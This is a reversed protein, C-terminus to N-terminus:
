ENPNSREFDTLVAKMIIPLSEGIGYEITKKAQMIEDETLDRNLHEKAYEQIDEECLLYIIKEKNM